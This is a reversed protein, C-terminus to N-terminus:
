DYASAGGGTNLPLPIVGEWGQNRAWPLDSDEATDAICGTLLGLFLACLLLCALRCVVQTINNQPFSM